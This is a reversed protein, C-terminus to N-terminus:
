FHSQRQSCGVLKNVDADIIVAVNREAAVIVRYLGDLTKLVDRVAVYPDSTKLARGLNNSRADINTGLICGKQAALTKCRRM